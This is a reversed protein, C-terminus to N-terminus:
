RFGELSRSFHRKQAEFNVKIFPVSEPNPYDEVLTRCCSDCLCDHNILVSHYHWCRPCKTFNPDAALSKVLVSAHPSFLEDHHQEPTIDRTTTM